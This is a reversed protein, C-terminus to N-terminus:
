LQRTTQVLHHLFENDHVRADFLIARIHRMVEQNAREIIGNEEKLYATAFSRKCKALRTLEAFLENRFFSGQDTHVVDPKGCQGFHQLIYGSAESAGTTKSTFLEVWRSFADIM